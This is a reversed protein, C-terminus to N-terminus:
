QHVPMVRIMDLGRKGFINRDLFKGKRGGFVEDSVGLKHRFRMGKMNAIGDGLVLDRGLGVKVMGIM